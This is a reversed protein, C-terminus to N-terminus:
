SFSQGASTTESHSQLRHPSFEGSQEPNAARQTEGSTDLTECDWTAWCAGEVRPRVTYRRRGRRTGATAATKGSSACQTAACTAGVVCPEAGACTSSRLDGAWLREMNLPTQFRQQQQQQERPPQQQQQQPAFSSASSSSSE